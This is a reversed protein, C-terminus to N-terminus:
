WRGRLIITELILAKDFLYAIILAPPLHNLLEIMESMKRYGSTVEINQIVVM